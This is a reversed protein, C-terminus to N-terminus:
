DLRWVVEGGRDGMGRWGKARVVEERRSREGLMEEASVGAGFAGVEEREVRLWGRWGMVVEPRGMGKVNVANGGVDRGDFGFLITGGFERRYSNHEGYLMYKEIGRLTCELDQASPRFVHLHKLDERKLIKEKRVQENNSGEDEDEDHDEFILFSPSFRGNVDILVVCSELSEESDEVEQLLRGGFIEESSKIRDM